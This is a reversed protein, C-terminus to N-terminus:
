KQSIASILDHRTIIHHKGNKLEVLVATNDKNIFKSIEEIKADEKVIPFPAQMIGSVPTDKLEPHDILLQYVKNDDLSGVFKGDKIVPIQSIYHKRM